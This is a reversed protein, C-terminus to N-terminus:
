GYHVGEPQESSFSAGLDRHYMAIVGRYTKEDKYKLLIPPHFMGAAANGTDPEFPIIEAM